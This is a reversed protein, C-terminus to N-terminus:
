GLDHHNMARPECAFFPDIGTDPAIPVNGKGGYFKWRLWGVLLPFVVYRPGVYVGRTRRLWPIM